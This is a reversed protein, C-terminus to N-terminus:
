SYSPIHSLKVIRYNPNSFLHPRAFVNEIIIREHQKKVNFDKCKGRGRRIRRVLEAGPRGQALYNAAESVGGRRLRLFDQPRPPVEHLLPVVQPDASGISSLLVRSEEGAQLQLRRALAPEAPAQPAAAKFFIKPAIKYIIASNELKIEKM